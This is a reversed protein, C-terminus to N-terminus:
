WWLAPISNSSKILSPNNTFVLDLINEQQTPQEHIQSLSHEVSLDFKETLLGPRVSLSEWDIDHSNFAGALIIHKPYNSNTLNSLSQVLQDILKFM